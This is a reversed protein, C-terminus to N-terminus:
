EFTGELDIGTGRTELKVQFDLGYKKSETSYHGDLHYTHREDKSFTSIKILFTNLNQTCCNEVYTM